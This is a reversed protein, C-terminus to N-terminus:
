SLVRHRSTDVHRGLLLLSRRTAIELLRALRLARPCVAAPDPAAAATQAGGLLVVKRRRLERERLFALLRQGVRLVHAVRHPAEVLDLLDAVGVARLRPLADLGRRLAEADFHGRVVPAVQELAALGALALGGSNEYRGWRRRSAPGLSRGRARTGQARLSRP